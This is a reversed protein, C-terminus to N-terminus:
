KTVILYGRMEPHDPTCHKNAPDYLLACHYEYVGVRDAVFTLRHSEGPSLVTTKADFGTLEFQHAVIDPNAVALDVTDGERVVMMTPYWRHAFVGQGSFTAVVMPLTVKVPAARPSAVGTGTVLRRSGFAVLSGALALGSVALALYALVNGQRIM